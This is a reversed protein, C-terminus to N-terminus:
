NGGRARSQRRRKSGWSHARPWRRSGRAQKGKIAKPGGREGVMSGPKGLGMAVEKLGIAEARRWSGRAQKGWAVEKLGQGVDRQDHAWRGM